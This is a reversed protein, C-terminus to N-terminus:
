TNKTNSRSLHFYTERYKTLLQSDKHLALSYTVVDANAKNLAEANEANMPGDIYAKGLAGAKTSADKYAQADVTMQKMQYIITFISVSNKNGTSTNKSHEETVKQAPVTQVKSFLSEELTSQTTDSLTSQATTDLAETKLRHFGDHAHKKQSQQLAKMLEDSSIAGDTNIDISNFVTDADNYTKGTKETLAQAAQRFEAKDITGSKDTDSTSMLTDSAKQLMSTYDTSATGCAGSQRQVTNGYSQSSVAWGAGGNITM